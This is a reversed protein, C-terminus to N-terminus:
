GSAGRPAAVRVGVRVECGKDRVNALLAVHEARLDRVSRIGHAMVIAQCYLESGQRQDQM